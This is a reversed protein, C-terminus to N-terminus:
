DLIIFKNSEICLRSPSRCHGFVTMHHFSFADTWVSSKFVLPNSLTFPGNRCVQCLIDHDAAHFAKSLDILLAACCNADLGEM